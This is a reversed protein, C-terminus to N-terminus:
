GSGLAPQLRRLVPDFGPEAPFKGQADPWLCQLVPYNQGKYYWSAYGFHEAYVSRPVLAFRVEFREIIGPTSDGDTFRRACKVEEGLTNLFRHLMEPDTLGVVVIEPHGFTKFLGITYGFPPGQDDEPILAVHWGFEAVDRLIKQEVTDDAPARRWPANGSDRWAIWGVPLDALQLLSPDLVTIERLSVLTADDRDVDGGDLFQWGSEDEDRTVLLISSKGDTIRKITFVPVNEPDDFPWDATM